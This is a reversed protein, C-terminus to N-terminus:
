TPVRGRALGAVTNMFSIRTALIANAAYKTTEASAIDMIPHRQGHSAIPVAPPFACSFRSHRWSRSRYAGFPTGSNYLSPREGVNRIDM